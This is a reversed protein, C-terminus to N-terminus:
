PSAFDLLSVEECAACLMNGEDASEGCIPCQVSIDMCANCMVHGDRTSAACVSCRSSSASPKATGGLSLSGMTRAVQNVEADLRSRNPSRPRPPILEHENRRSTTVAEPADSEHEGQQSLNCMDCKRQQAPNEFTCRPCTWTNQPGALATGKRVLGPLPGVTCQAERASSTKM